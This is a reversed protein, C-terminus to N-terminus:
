NTFDLGLVVIEFNSDVLPGNRVQSDTSNGLFNIIM